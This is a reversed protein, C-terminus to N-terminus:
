AQPALPFRTYIQEIVVALNDPRSWSLGVGGSGLHPGQNRRCDIEGLTSQTTIEMAM